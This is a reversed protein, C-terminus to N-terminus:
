RALSVCQADYTAPLDFEAALQLADQELGPPSVITIPLNLFRNLLDIATELPLSERRMRQRLMNTMEGRLLPPAIVQGDGALEHDLMRVAFDSRVEEPFWWKGAVSADAVIM